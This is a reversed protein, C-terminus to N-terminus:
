YWLNTVHVQIIGIHYFDCNNNLASSDFYKLACATSKKNYYQFIIMCVVIKLFGLKLHIGLIFFSLNWTKHVNVLYEYIGDYHVKMNIMPVPESNKHMM